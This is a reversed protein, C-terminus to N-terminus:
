TPNSSALWQRPSRFSLKPIENVASENDCFWSTRSDPYRTLMITTGAAIGAYEIADPIMNILRAAKVRDVLSPPIVAAAPPPNPDRRSSILQSIKRDSYFILARIRKKASTKYKGGGHTIAGYMSCNTDGPVKKGSTASAHPPLVHDIVM